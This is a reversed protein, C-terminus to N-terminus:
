KLFERRMRVSWGEIAKIILLEDELGDTQEHVWRLSKLKVGEESGNLEFTAFDHLLSGAGYYECGPEIKQRFRPKENSNTKMGLNTTKM